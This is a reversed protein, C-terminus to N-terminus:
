FGNTIHTIKEQSCIGRAIYLKEVEPTNVVVKDAYSLIKKEFYRALKWHFYSPFLWMYGDTFPDRIDAVWKIGLRKKLLFGLIWSSFPASSTYVIKIDNDIVIKEAKRYASFPWIASM